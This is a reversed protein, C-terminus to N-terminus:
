QQRFAQPTIDHWRKFARHFAGPESYGFLLGVEGVSISPDALFVKAAEKLTADRLADFSTGEAALRRQLTRPAMALRRSVVELSMETDPAPAALIRRVEFAVG